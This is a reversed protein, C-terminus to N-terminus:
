PPRGHYSGHDPDSGIRHAAEQRLCAGVTERAEPAVPFPGAQERPQVRVAVQVPVGHVLGQRSHPAHSRFDPLLARLFQRDERGARGPVRCVSFFEHRRHFLFRADREPDDGAFFFRFEAEQASRGHYPRFAAPHDIDAAATRLDGDAGPLPDLARQGALHAGHPQVPTQPDAPLFVHPRHFHGRRLDQVVM